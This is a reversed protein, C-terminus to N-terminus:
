MSIVVIVNVVNVMGICIKMLLMCLRFVSLCWGIFIVVIFVCQCLVLFFLFMGSIINVSGLLFFFCLLKLIVMGFSFLMIRVWESFLVKLGSVEIGVLLCGGIVGINKVKWMMILSFVSISSNVQIDVNWSYCLFSSFEGYSSCLYFQISGFLKM